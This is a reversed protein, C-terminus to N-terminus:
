RVHGEVEKLASETFILLRGPEGGPAAMSATLDGLPTVDVGPINRAARVIGRDEKVILLPGRKRVYKRGRTTGKGARVKRTKARELEKELGVKKFLAVVDKSKKVTELDDSFVLPMELGNIKHGRAEVLEKKMGAAVASMIALFREKQNMRRAFNKESKPPHAKRGKKAQPVFRATFNLSGQGHIRKMRALEKNMMSFYDGRRGHYHASTRKGAFPDAGYRQRIKSRESTVAMRILDERVPMSRIRALSIVGGKSGQLNYIAVSM